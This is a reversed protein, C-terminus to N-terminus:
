ELTVTKTISGSFGRRKLEDWLEQDSFLDIPRADRFKPIAVNTEDIPEMNSENQRPPCIKAKRSESRARFNCEKCVSLHGDKANKNAPFEDIPLEMGCRTCKKTEMKPTFCKLNSCPTFYGTYGKANGKCGGGPVYKACDIGCIM